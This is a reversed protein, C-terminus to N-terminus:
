RITTFCDRALQLKDHYKVGSVNKNKQKRRKKKM